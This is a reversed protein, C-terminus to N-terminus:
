GENIIAICPGRFGALGKIAPARAHGARKEQSPRCASRSGQKPDAGRRGILRGRGPTMACSFARSPTPAFVPRATRAGVDGERCGEFLEPNSNKGAPSNDPVDTGGQEMGPRTSHLPLRRNNAQAPAAM